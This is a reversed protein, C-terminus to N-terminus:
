GREQFTMQVEWMRNCAPCTWELLFGDSVLNVTDGGAEEDCEPCVYLTAPPKEPMTPRKKNAM